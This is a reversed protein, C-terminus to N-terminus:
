GDSKKYVWSGSYKGLFDRAIAPVPDSLVNIQGIFEKVVPANFGELANYLEETNPYPSQDFSIRLDSTGYSRSGNFIDSGEITSPFV